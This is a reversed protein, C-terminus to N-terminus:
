NRPRDGARFGRSESVFRAARGAGRENWHTDDPHYIYNGADLAAAAQERLVPTLDLVSVASQRLKEGLAALYPTQNSAKSDHDRLLPHYVNFKDPVLVVLLENGTARVSANLEVFFSVDMARERGFNQEEEPLFLFPQNDRLRRVIVMGASPNPLVHGDYATMLLRTAFIQLPSYYFIDRGLRGFKRLQRSVDDDRRLWRKVVGFLGEGGYNAVVPLDRRETQQYIVLGDKLQLRKIPAEIDPWCDSGFVEGGNYSKLGSLESFQACFTESDSLGVGTTFSDGCVLVAPPGEDRNPTRRFGWKDTSFVESRYHRLSPLNGLNALDGYARDTKFTLGPTFPGEATRFMRAAELGRFAVRSPQILRATLDLFLAFAIIGPILRGLRWRGADREPDSNEKMDM